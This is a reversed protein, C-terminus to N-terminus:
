DDYYRKLVVPSVGLYFFVLIMWNRLTCAFAGEKQWRRASTRVKSSFIQICGGNKRLRQVLDVDEMVPYPMFGGVREYWERKVCIAQDGYPIGTLRSRLNAATEIIRFILGEANISLDFASAAVTKNMRISLMDKFATVPLFTDAHLFLLLDGRANTAGVAMQIGRGKPSKIKIIPEDRIVSLTGADDDGDVVVIEIHHFYPLSRLHSLVDNITAQENLVPIIVSILPKM